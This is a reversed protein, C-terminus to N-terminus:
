YKEFKILGRWREYVGAPWGAMKALDGFLIIIPLFFIGALRFGLSKKETFVLWRRWFKWLYIFSGFLISFFLPWYLKWSFFLIILAILYTAYRVVQRKIWLKGHGDSRTYSFLQRFYSRLSRRPRWFVLPQRIYEPAIEMKKIKLDFIVDECIPIWEPYGGVNQWLEKTFAVSRSSPLWDKKFEQSAPITAAALLYVLMKDNKKLWPGFATAAFQNKGAALPSALDKLWDPDYICGADTAVIIDGLAQRIAFNRGVAINGPQQYIRLKSDKSKGKLLEWTGDISGGDVVIIEDPSLTQSKIDALWDPLHEKENLVTLILSIM